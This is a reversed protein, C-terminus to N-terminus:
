PTQMREPFVLRAPSGEGRVLIGGQNQALLLLEEDNIYRLSTSKQTTAIRESSGPVSQVFEVSGPRTAITRAPHLPITTVERSTMLTSALPSPGPFSSRHSLKVQLGVVTLVLALALAVRQTQRVRRHTRVAKITLQLLQDDQSGEPSLIDKLLDKHEPPPKM